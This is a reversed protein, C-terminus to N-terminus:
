RLEAPEGAEEEVLRLSKGLSAVNLTRRVTATAYRLELYGGRDHLERAFFLLLGLSTSDLLRLGRADIRVISTRKGVATELAQRLEDARAQDLEGALRIPVGGDNAPTGVEIRTDDTGMPRVQYGFGADPLRLM